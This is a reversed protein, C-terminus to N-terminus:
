ALPRAAEFKSVREELNTPRQNFQSAYGARVFWEKGVTLRNQILDASVFGAFRDFKFTFAAQSERLEGRIGAVDVELTSVRKKLDAVDSKLEAVGNRLENLGSELESNTRWVEAVHRVLEGLQQSMSVLLERTDSM